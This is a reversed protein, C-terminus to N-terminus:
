HGSSLPQDDGILQFPGWFAPHHWGDESLMFQQAERVAASKSLGMRLAKYMREMFDFTSTDAVQWMSVLLAGAGAYLFGRGLGILEDSAAVSARGTECASLTVLEYSLDQQLIDDTYLQGDALQLYSLDPQDLRHEGHTAIHLIQTPSSQLATRTADEGACLTGSFLGQVMQAEALAHPLRGEWSNALILAGPDRKLRPRTALGAAPLVIVEHKQILYGSGDYLLHFPLYHLVSYPVIILKRPNYRHLMLPEILLSHLRKLIRRALQILNRGAATRPDVTLAGAINGKLQDLLKNLTETTTPLPQVQINHGDLIFVWICSGDNYFEILLTGDSLTNQINKLSMTAIRNAQYDDGSHLYLQETISRIRRERVALEVLAREPRITYTHETNRSPEHALRYFWQHEARLKNLEELMSQTHTNGTAWRFQERNALYSLLAQSKAHELADFACEAQGSQLHLAILNRAAEGKDELFGTRLTITLGRQVREVATTAARYHRAARMVQHQADSIQGLLLHSIYRLSPVKFRQAIGLARTAAQYADRFDSLVLQSQGQLLTAAAYNVLQGHEVFYNAAVVALEHAKKTDGQKLAIRGRRLQATAVWAAAGLSTFIPEAEELATRAADFNNLEAEATALHLLNRATDHTAGLKRYEAIIQKALDRAEAYRNLYLFCEIMDRKVAWYEVPFEEIGRELIGYLLRLARRYHGQSQAIYAINLEVIAINLTEKRGIHIKRAREYYTLAQSFDGLSEHALGINIHLPGLYSKGADGLTEAIALASHYQRLAQIQDGLLSHVLATNLDLRLLKEHEGHHTFITRAIEADALADSVFNLTTSLYVRGIRTRAWGVQDGMTQFIRGAEDLTEWAEAFRDLLKLADGRAMLGLATQRMDGRREGIAVIRDAFELSRHYDIYWYRDAEQKLREVVVAAVEDPLPTSLIHSPISESLFQEVLGEIEM